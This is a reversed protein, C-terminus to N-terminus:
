WKKLLALSVFRGVPSYNTSDYPTDYFLSTAIPAPKDNFLNQVSLTVDINALPGRGREPRYALTLDVPTMGDIRVAPESRSDKVPGIRTVNGTVVFPGKAWSIEARGRLHPPNYLIGALRTVPLAATLQQESVLYSANLSMTLSGGALNSRYRALMDVGHIRQRGANVSTNDVIAVVDAPDYGPNGTLNAFSSAGAILAAQAGAGPDFAILDTYGPDSLAVSNFLIPTVIRDRYRVSFYSVELSAGPLWQPHVDLTASWNSSREPKLAGRGGILLLATATSPYGAGGLSAATVLYAAQPQYQQYLTPARFSRGWSAKIDLDRSPAYILGLKPTVVQGIRPYREYRVAASLNLRDVFAIGQAPSIFPLNFEGFAYYSDQAREINQTGGVGTFRQFRNRRYGTGLALKASGGPLAFLTGNGSLEASTGRNRYYGSGLDIRTTGFFLNGGYDVKDQGYSGSLSLQWDSSLDLRFSPALGFSRAVTFSTGRSVSLDGAFNLPFVLDSWRKNFLGDFGFTLTPTLATRGALVASHHRLAPYLTLGPVRTAAYSRQRAEIASNSGYEYALLVNGSTWTRGATAAYQQEFNGGDTSAGLRASTELGDLDRRLIVNVVGAVADSGFLASAGDPVIEIRDVASFPIASIDVSQRAASYSLRHGNLLTLTADSGLGRLNVSAGGGVDAGSTEPVDFGIGPNQGGGFNQPITRVVDGLNAQGANRLAERNLTIVPSAVPAGRIRTGTVVIEDSSGADSAGAAVTDQDRRIVLSSGVTVPHLGTGRLLLAIAEEFTHSGRLAAGRRGEVLDSPTIINRGSILAVAQLSAGLPQAPLNFDRRDAQRALPPAAWLVTANCAAVCWAARTLLNTLRM